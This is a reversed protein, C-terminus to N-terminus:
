MDPAILFREDNHTGVERVIQRVLRRAAHIGGRGLRDKAARSLEIALLSATAVADVPEQLHRDLAREIYLQQVKAIRAIHAGFAGSYDTITGERQVLSRSARPPISHFRLAVRSGSPLLAVFIGGAGSTKWTM